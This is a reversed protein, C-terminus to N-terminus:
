VQSAKKKKSSAILMLVSGGMLIAGIISLMAVGAGGTVPLEFGQSNAIAVTVNGGAQTVHAGVPKKLINYTDPAVVEVLFYDKGTALDYNLGGFVAKGLNGGIGTEVVWDVAGKYDANQPDNIGYASDFDIIAGATTKKLFMGAEANALSTAIQFKAGGLRAETKIDYKDVTLSAYYTITNGSSPLTKADYTLTASNPASGAVATSNLTAKLNIQIAKGKFQDLLAVYDSFDIVVTGPTTTTDVDYHTEFVLPEDTGMGDADLVKVSVSKYTFVSNLVDTVLFAELDAIEEPIGLVIKWDIEDGVKFSQESLDGGNDYSKSIFLSSNKPYVNVTYLWPQADKTAADPNEMPISVLFPATPAMVNHSAQEIVYYVGDVTGFSKTALGQHDTIIDNASNAYDAKKYHYGEGAIAAFDGANLTGNSAAIEANMEEKTYAKVVRFSIDPLPTAGTIPGTVMTGDGPEGPTYDDDVLLKNINLTRTTTTDTLALASPAFATFLLIVPILIALIKTFINKKM